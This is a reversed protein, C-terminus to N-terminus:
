FNLRKFFFLYRLLPSSYFSFYSFNCVQNSLSSLVLVFECNFWLDQTVENGKSQLGHSVWSTQFIWDIGASTNPACEHHQHRKYALNKMAVSASGEGTAEGSPSCAQWGTHVGWSSELDGEFTEFLHWRHTPSDEVNGTQCGARSASEAREPVRHRYESGAVQEWCIEGWWFTQTLLVLRMKTM